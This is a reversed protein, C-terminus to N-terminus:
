NFETLVAAGNKIKVSCVIRRSVYIAQKQLSAFSKDCTRYSRRYVTSTEPCNTWIGQHCLMHWLQQCCCCTTATTSSHPDNGRWPRVQCTPVGQTLNMAPVLAGSMVMAGATMDVVVMAAAAGEATGMAVAEALAMPPATAAAGASGVAAGAQEMDTAAEGMGMAVGALVAAAEVQPVANALASPDTAEGLPQPFDEAAVAALAIQRVGVAPLMTASTVQCAACQCFSCADGESRGLTTQM